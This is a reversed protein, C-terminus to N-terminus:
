KVTQSQQKMKKMEGISVAKVIFFKSEAVLDIEKQKEPALKRGAPSVLVKIVPRLPVQLNNRVVKAVSGDNLIVISGVPYIGMSKVFVKLIEANFRRSNDNLIQRMATYGIMSNRYPRERVMAEYADVVSLIRSTMPIEKGKLQKPYGKGDWREHHYLVTRGIDEPYGIERTIIQYSYIPHTYVIKKEKETLEGKKELISKPIKVMGVDHLLAATALNILQYNPMKLNKGVLVALIMCNVASQSLNHSTNKVQFMPGILQDPSEILIQFVNEVIENVEVKEPLNGEVLGVFIKDTLEVAKNYEFVQGEQSFYHEKRVAEKGAIDGETQVESIEWRILRDIDKKKLEVNEPVLLNEGDIYVPQTFIMGPSLDAVKINRM